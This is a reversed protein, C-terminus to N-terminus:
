THERARGIVEQVVEQIYMSTSTTGELGIQGEGIIISAHTRALIIQKTRAM